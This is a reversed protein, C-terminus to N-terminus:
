SEWSEINYKCIHQQEKLYLGPKEVAADCATQSLSAALIHFTWM